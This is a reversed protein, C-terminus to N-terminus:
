NPKEVKIRKERQIKQCKAFRMKIQLFSSTVLLAYFIHFSEFRSQLILASEANNHNNIDKFLVM